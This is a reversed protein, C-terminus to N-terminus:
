LKIREQTLYPLLRQYEDLLICYTQYDKDKILAQELARYEMWMVSSVESEQLKLQDLPQDWELIYVYQIEHDNFPQEHFTYQHYVEQCFVYRLPYGTIGLEEKLERYAAQEFTEGPDLHGASSTDLCNPFSDKYPSRKQLLIDISGQHRRYIFIHSAGHLDGDRHVKERQKIMGSPTGDPNLIMFTEM